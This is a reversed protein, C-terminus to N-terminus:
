IIYKILILHIRQNWYKQSSRRLFQIVENTKMKQILLIACPMLLENFVKASLFVKDKMLYVRKMKKNKWWRFCQHAHFRITIDAKSLIGDYVFNYKCKENMKIFNILDSTRQYKEFFHYSIYKKEIM